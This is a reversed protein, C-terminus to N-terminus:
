AAEVEIEQFLIEKAKQLLDFNEVSVEIQAAQITDIMGIRNKGMFVVLLLISGNISICNTM